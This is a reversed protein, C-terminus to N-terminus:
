CFVGFRWKQSTYKSAQTIVCPPHRGLRPPPAFLAARCRARRRNMNMTKTYTHTRIFIYISVSIYKEIYIHIYFYITLSLNRTAYVRPTGGSARLRCGLDPSEPIRTKPKPTRTSGGQLCGLPLDCTLRGCIGGSELLMNIPTSKSLCLNAGPNDGPHYM